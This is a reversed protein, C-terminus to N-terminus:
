FQSTVIPVINGCLFFTLQLNPHLIQRFIYFDCLVDDSDIWRLVAGIKRALQTQLKAFLLSM